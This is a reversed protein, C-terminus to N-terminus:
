KKSSAFHAALCTFAVFGQSHVVKTIIRGFIVVSRAVSAYAQNRGYNVPAIQEAM